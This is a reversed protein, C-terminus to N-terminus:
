IARQTNSNVEARQKDVESHAAMTVDPLLSYKHKLKARELEDYSNDELKDTHTAAKRHVTGTTNPLLCTALQQTQVRYDFM